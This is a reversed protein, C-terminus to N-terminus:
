RFNFEEDIGGDDEEPQATKLKGARILADREDLATEIREIAEDIMPQTIDNLADFYCHDAQDLYDLADELEGDHEEVMALHFCIDVQKPRIHYAKELCERAEDYRGLAIYTAGLNDLIVSDADDYELAELNFDLANELEGARLYCDGLTQYTRGSHFKDHVTELAELGEEERGSRFICWAINLETDNRDMERLRKVKLVREFYPIAEAFKGKRMLLVAYGSLHGAAKNGHQFAKEYAVMAEDYKKQTHLIYARNGYYIDLPWM